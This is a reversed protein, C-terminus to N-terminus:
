SAHRTVIPPIPEIRLGHRVMTDMLAEILYVATNDNPAEIRSQFENELETIFADFDYDPAHWSM